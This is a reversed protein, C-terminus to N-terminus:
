TRVLITGGRVEATGVDRLSAPVHEKAVSLLNEEALLAVYSSPLPKGNATAGTVRLDLARDVVSLGLEVTGNLYRGALVEVGLPRLEELPISVDALISEGEIRVHVRKAWRRGEENSALLSNLDDASVEIRDDKSGPPAKEFSEFRERLAEVEGPKPEHVPIAMPETSTFGLFSYIWWAIGGATLFAIVTTGLCGWFLCGRGGRKVAAGEITTDEQMAQTREKV